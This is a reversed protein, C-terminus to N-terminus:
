SMSVVISSMWTANLDPWSVARRALAIEIGDGGVVLLAGLDIGDYREIVM